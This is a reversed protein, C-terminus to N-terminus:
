YECKHKRQMNKYELCSSCYEKNRSVLLGLLHELVLFKNKEM